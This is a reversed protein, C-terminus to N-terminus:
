VSIFYELIRSNICSNLILFFSYLSSRTLAFRPSSSRGYFGFYVVVILSFQKTIKNFFKKFKKNSKQSFTKLCGFAAPTGQKALQTNEEKKKTRRERKRTTQEDLCFSSNRM